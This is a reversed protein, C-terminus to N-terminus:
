TRAGRGASSSACKRSSSPPRTTAWCPACRGASAPRPRPARPRAHRGPALHGPLPAPERGRRGVPLAPSGTSTPRALRRLRGPAAPAGGPPPELSRQVALLATSADLAGAPRYSSPATTQAAVTGHYRRRAAQRAALRIIERLSLFTRDHAEERGPDIAVGGVELAVGGGHGREDVVQAGLEGAHAAAAPRDRGLAVALAALQGGAVPDVPEISGPVGNRSNEASAACPM